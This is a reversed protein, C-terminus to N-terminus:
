NQHFNGYWGTCYDAVGDSGYGNCTKISIQSSDTIIKDFEDYYGQTKGSGLTMHHTHTTTGAFSSYRVYVVPARGDSANDHVYLYVRAGNTGYWGVYSNGWTKGAMAGHKSDTSQYYGYCSAPICDTDGVGAQAPIATATVGGVVLAASALAMGIKRKLNM